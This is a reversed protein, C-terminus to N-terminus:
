FSRLASDALICASNKQSDHDKTALYLAWIVLSLLATLIWAVVNAPVIWLWQRVFALTYLLILVDGIELKGPFSKLKQSRLTHFTEASM